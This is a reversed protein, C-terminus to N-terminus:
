LDGRSLRKMNMMTKVMQATSMSDIFENFDKRSYIIEDLLKAIGGEGDRDAKAIYSLYDIDAEYYGQCETPFAGFPAEVVADVVFHPITTKSSNRRIYDIDVVEETTIIVKSASLAIEKDQIPMGIIQSNGYRDAMQVHIIAVSPNIAPVLCLRQGTFPCNMEKVPLGKIIDSGMMTFTPIFPLGMSGAQFRSLIGMHSWEELKVRGENVLGSIVKSVGLPGAIAMWSTIFKSAVGSVALLEAEFSMMTRAVRLDRKKSRIIHWIAAVPDRTIVTGGLAVLDGDNILRMAGEFDMLKDRLGHDKASVDRYAQDNSM